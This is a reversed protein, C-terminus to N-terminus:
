DFALEIRQAEDGVVLQRQELMVGEREVELTYSGALMHLPTEVGWRGPYVQRM